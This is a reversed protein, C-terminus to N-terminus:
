PVMQAKIFPESIYNEIEIDNTKLEFIYKLASDIDKGKIFDKKIKLKPLEHIMNKRSLQEKVQEIHSTYIHCDGFTITMYGPKFNTIKCLLENLLAYSAINFPVGLFLDGSRQYMKLDLYQEDNETRVFFQTVLGHCPYLVCQDVTLPDYTTMIIRRSNPDNFLLDLVYKLQDVYKSNNDNNGISYPKGYFRWNYGYMPGLFGVPYLLNMHKLFKENTNSKWIFNNEAELVKTDTEGKLFMLLESIVKDFLVKKTTLLPFGDQLNFTLQHGFSAYTQANRTHRHSENYLIHELLNLYGIENNFTLSTNELAFTEVKLHINSYYYTIPKKRILLYKLFKEYPFNILEKKNNIENTEVIIFDDNSYESDIISFDNEKINNLSKIFTTNIIGFMGLNKIMYNKTYKDDLKIKGNTHNPITQYVNKNKDLIYLQIRKM